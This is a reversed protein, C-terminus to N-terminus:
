LVVSSEHRLAQRWPLDLLCMSRAFMKAVPSETWMPVPNTATVEENMVGSPWNQRCCVPCDGCWVCSM